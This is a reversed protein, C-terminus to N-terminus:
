LDRPLEEIAAHELLTAPGDVGLRSPFGEPNRRGYLPHDCRADIAQRAVVFRQQLERCHDAGADRRLEQCRHGSHGCRLQLAMQPRQFDQVKEDLRAPQRRDFIFERMIEHALHGVIRDQARLALIQM